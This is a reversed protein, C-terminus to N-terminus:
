DSSPRTIELYARTLPDKPMVRAVKHFAAYAREFNGRQFEAYGLLFYADKSARHERVWAALADTCEALKGPQPYYQDLRLDVYVLNPQLQLARRLVTGAEDYQGLALRAQALHIRCAPDGNNLKAALTLGVVARAYDGQKLKGLGLELAEAHKDLLRTKRRAMDRRNWHRRGYEREDFRGVFYAEELASQVGLPDYYGYAGYPAWRRIFRPRDWYRGWRDPRGRVEARPYRTGEFGPRLWADRPQAAFDRNRRAAARDRRVNVVRVRERQVAPEADPKLPVVQIVAREGDQAVGPPDKEDDAQVAVTLLIIVVTSSCIRRAQKIM